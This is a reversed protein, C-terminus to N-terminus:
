KGIRDGNENGEEMGEAQMGKNTWRVVTKM